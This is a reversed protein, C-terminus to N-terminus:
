PEAGEQLGHRRKMSVKVTNRSAKAGTAISRQSYGLANLRLIERYNVM